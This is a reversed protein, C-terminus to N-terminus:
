NWGSFCEFPELYQIIIWWLAMEDQRLMCALYVATGENGGRHRTRPGGTM